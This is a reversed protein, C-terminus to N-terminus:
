RTLRFVAVRALGTDVVYLTSGQADTAVGTPTALEGDGSGQAGAVGVIRMASDLILVQHGIPDTVAVGGDPLASLHPANFTDSRPIAWAGLLEGGAGIKELRRANPEAVVMAGDALRAVGTPQDLAPTGGQGPTVQGIQRGDPSVVVVRNGATEAVLISGDAGVSVGRPKGFHLTGLRAPPGEPPVGYLLGAEADAVVLRGDALKALDWPKAPPQTAFTIPALTAGQADVRHIVNAEPDAVYVTGQRDVAVGHPNVWRDSAAGALVRVFSATVTPAVRPLPVPATSAPAAAATQAAASTPPPAQALWDALPPPAAGTAALQVADSRWAPFDAIPLVPALPLASPPLSNWAGFGWVNVAAIVLAVVASLPQSRAELAAPFAAVAAEFGYGAFVAIPPLLMAGWTSGPTERVAAPGLAVVAGLALYWPLAGRRRWATALGIVAFFTTAVDLFPIAPPALGLGPLPSSWFIAGGAWPLPELGSAVASPASPAGQTSASAPIQPLFLALAVCLLLELRVLSRRASRRRQQANQGAGKRIRHTFVGVIAVLSLVVIILHGPPPGYLGLASWVGAVGWWRLSTRELAVQATWLGWVLFVVPWVDDTGTRSLTLFWFSAAFVISAGIAPWRAMTRRALLYLPAVATTAIVASVLRVSIAADGFLAVFLSFVYSDLAPLGRWDLAFLGPGWSSAVRFAADLADVEDSTLFPPVSGLAWTRLLLAAVIVAALVLPERRAVATLAGTAAAVAERAASLPTGPPAAM